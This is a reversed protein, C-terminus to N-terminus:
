DQNDLTDEGNASARVLAIILKIDRSAEFDVEAIWCDDLNHLEGANGLHTAPNSMKPCNM